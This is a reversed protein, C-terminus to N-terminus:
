SEQYGRVISVLTEAATELRDNIVTHRYVGHQAMERRANAMRKDIIDPPDAGRQELRQRLVDSSPPMIFITIADPYKACLQVTGQVDIDLLVDHGAAREADIFVASTGYYNGHVHAWEAWQNAQIGAKFTEVDTFFYDVGDVEGERPSRTTTSISYRLAPLRETLIRCLTSKGAGSPASVIFLHGAPSVFHSKEAM